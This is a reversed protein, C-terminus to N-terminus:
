RANIQVQRYYQRFTGMDLVPRQYEKGWPNFLEVTGKEADVSVVAYAHNAHIGKSSMADLADEDFHKKDFTGATMPRSNRAAEDLLTLLDEDSKSATMVKTTRNGTLAEMADQNKMKDNMKNGRIDEYGGKLKAWAKEVLMVWLEPGDDKTRDGERAYVPQDNQVPFHDDVHVEGGEHFTVTYTGDGNDKIMRRLVAPNRQALAGLAAILYCDGLLGQAVDNLDIDSADDAGKVFPRGKIQGYEPNEVHETKASPQATPDKLPDVQGSPTNGSDTKQKGFLRDVLSQLGGGGQKGAETRFGAPKLMDAGEAYGTSRLRNRLDEQAAQRASRTAQGTAGSTEHKRVTKPAELM